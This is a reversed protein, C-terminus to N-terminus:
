PLHHTQFSPVEFRVDIAIPFVHSSICTCHVHSQALLELLSPLSFHILGPGPSCIDLFCGPFPFLTPSSLPPCPHILTLWPGLSPHSSPKNLPLYDYHQAYLLALILSALLPYHLDQLSLHPMQVQELFPFPAM